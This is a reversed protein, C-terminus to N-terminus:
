KPAFQCSSIVGSGAVSARAATPAAPTSRRRRRPYAAPIERGLPPLPLPDAGSDRRRLSIRSRSAQSPPWSVGSPSPRRQFNTLDGRGDDSVPREALVDFPKRKTVCLSVDSLTRNSCVCEVIERRVAFFEYMNVCPVDAPAKSPRATAPDLPGQARDPEWAGYEQSLVAATMAKPRSMTERCSRTRAGVNTGM